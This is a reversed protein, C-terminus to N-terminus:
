RKIELAIVLDYKTSKPYDPVIAISFYQLKQIILNYKTLYAFLIENLSFLQLM